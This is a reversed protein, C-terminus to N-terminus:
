LKELTLRIIAILEIIVERCTLSPKLDSNQPGNELERISTEVQNAVSGHAQHYWKGKM